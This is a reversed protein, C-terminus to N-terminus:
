YGPHVRNCFLLGKSEAAGSIARKEETAARVRRGREKERGRKGERDVENSVIPRVGPVVLIKM